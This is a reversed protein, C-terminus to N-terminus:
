RVLNDCAIQILHKPNKERIILQSISRIANLVANLHEVRAQAQKQLTINRAFEVLGLFEKDDDIVLIPIREGM